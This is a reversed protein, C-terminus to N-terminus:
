NSRFFRNNFIRRYQEHAKEEWRLSKVADPVAKGLYSRKAQGASNYDLLQYRDYGAARIFDAIRILNDKTATIGPILPVRPIILDKNKKTLELFNALIIKNDVGTWKKHKGADIFKIDYFILDLYPLLKDTFEDLDFFGATQIAISIGNQKLLKMVASLYDMHRTPEGGSFTVGGGSTEYFVRDRLLEEVLQHPPYYVGIIKLALTPCIDACKGCSNCKTRDIRELTEMSIAGTKCALACDGCHICKEAHYAIEAEPSVAEPNHCWPCALPCGKLFVTTRIGPGDDLAFRHIDSILPLKAAKM